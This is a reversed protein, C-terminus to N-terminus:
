LVGKTSPIQSGKPSSAESLSQGFSKFISECIHHNNEGYLTEIHLTIGSKQAFAHFFEKVMETDMDGIKDQSFSSNFVIFPRGSIDIVTRSLSEDMPVFAIGYRKISSKDGLIKRFAEGLVLGTDEILHHCDVKLDGKGTVELDFGGHFAFLELMHDFFGIGTNIKIKRKGNIAISVTIDTENTKRSIKAKRM